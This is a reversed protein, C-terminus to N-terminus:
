NTLRDTTEIMLVLAVNEQRDLTPDDNSLFHDMVFDNAWYQSVLAELILKWIVLDGGGWVM